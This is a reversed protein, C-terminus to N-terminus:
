DSKLQSEFFLFQFSINELSSESNTGSWIKEAHSKNSSSHEILFWIFHFSRFKDWNYIITFCFNYENRKNSMLNNRDYVRICQEHMFLWYIKIIFKKLKNGSVCSVLFIDFQFKEKQNLVPFLEKKWPCCGLSKIRSTAHM